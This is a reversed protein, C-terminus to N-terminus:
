NGKVGSTTAVKSWKEIESRIYASFQAPSMPTPEMGVQQIVGSYRYQFGRATLTGGSTVIAGLPALLTFAMGYVAFLQGQQEKPTNVQLLATIVSQAMAIAFGM